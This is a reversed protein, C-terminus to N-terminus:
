SIVDYYLFDKTEGKDLARHLALHDTKGPDLLEGIHVILGELDWLPNGLDIDIDAYLTSDRFGPPPSAIVIQLCNRGGQRYSTLDFRQADSAQIGLRTLSDRLRQHIGATPPGEVAWLRADALRQVNTALDPQAAAYARDVDAFYIFEVASTLPETFGRPPDPPVRLKALINLLCAQRAARPIPSKLWENLPMGDVVSQAEMLLASTLPDINNRLRVRRPDPEEHVTIQFQQGSHLVIRQAADRFRFSELEVTIDYPGEPLGDPDGQFGSVRLGGSDITADLFFEKNRWDHRQRVPDLLRPFLPQLGIAIILPSADRHQDFVIGEDARFSVVNLPRGTLEFRLLFSENM